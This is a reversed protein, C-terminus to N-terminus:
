MRFKKSLCMSLFPKRNPVFPQVPRKQPCGSFFIKETFMSLLCFPLWIEVSHFSVHGQEYDSSVLVKRPRKLHWQLPPHFVSLSKPLDKCGLHRKRTKTYAGKEEEWIRQGCWPGPLWVPGHHRGALIGCPGPCLSLLTERPQFACSIEGTNIRSMNGVAQLYRNATEPDLTVDGPLGSPTSPLISFAPFLFAEPSAAQFGSFSHSPPHRGVDRSLFPLRGAGPKPLAWAMDTSPRVRGRELYPFTPLGLHSGTAPSYTTLVPGWVGAPGPYPLTFSIGFAYLKLLRELKLNPLHGRGQKNAGRGASPQTSLLQREKPKLKVSM